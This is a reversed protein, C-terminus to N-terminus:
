AIALSMAIDKAKVASDVSPFKVARFKEMVELDQPTFYRSCEVAKANENAHQEDETKPIVTVGRSINWALLLVAPTYQKVLVSGRSKLEEQQSDIFKQLRSFHIRAHSLGLPTYAIPRIGKDNLMKVLEHEPNMLNIENQIAFPLEDGDQVLKSLFMTLVPEYMNSMGFREAQEKHTVLSRWRKLLEDVMQELTPNGLQANMQEIPHHWLYLEMRKGIIDFAEQIQGDNGKMCVFLDGLTVQKAITKACPYTIACDIMTYKKAQTMTNIVTLMQRTDGTPTWSGMGIYPMSPLTASARYLCEVLRQARWM